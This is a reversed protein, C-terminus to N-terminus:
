PGDRDTVTQTLENDIRRTEHDLLFYLRKVADLLAGVVPDYRIIGEEKSVRAVYEIFAQREAAIDIDSPENASSAAPNDTM